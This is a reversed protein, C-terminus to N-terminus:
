EDVNVPEVMESANRVEHEIEPYDLNLEAALKDAEEKSFLTRGTGARGNVSSKWHIIYLKDM